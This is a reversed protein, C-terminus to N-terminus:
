LNSLTGRLDDVLAQAGELELIPGVVEILRMTADCTVHLVDMRRSGPRDDDFLQALRWGSHAAAASQLRTLEYFAQADQSLTQARQELAPFEGLEQSEPLGDLLPKDVDPWVDVGHLKLRDVWARGRQESEKQLVSANEQSSGMWATATALEVLSRVLLYAELPHNESVLLRIGSLLKHGRLLAGSAIDQVASAPTKLGAVAEEEFKQARTLVAWLAAGRPMSFWLDDTLAKQIADAVEQYPYAPLVAQLLDVLTALYAGAREPRLKDEVNEKPAEQLPAAMVASVPIFLRGRQKVGPVAARRSTRVNKGHKFHMVDNRVSVTDLFSQLPPADHRLTPKMKLLESLRVWKKKTTLSEMGKKGGAGYFEDHSVLPELLWNLVAEGATVVLLVAELSTRETAGPEGTRRVADRALLLLWEPIRSTQTSIWTTEVSELTAVLGNDFAVTINDRDEGLHCNKYKAGSGCHCPANRGLRKM